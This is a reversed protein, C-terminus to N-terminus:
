NEQLNPAQGTFFKGEGSPLNLEEATIDLRVKEATRKSPNINTAKNQFAGQSDDWIAECRNKWDWKKGQEVAEIAARREAPTYNAGYVLMDIINTVSSLSPESDNPFHYCAEYEGRSPYPGLTLLKAAHDMQTITWQVPTGAYQIPSLWKELVWGEPYKPIWRYEIVERILSNDRFNNASLEADSPIAGIHDQWAGGVLYNRSPGWVVRWLNDGYPNIGFSRLSVPLLKPKSQEGRIPIPRDPM